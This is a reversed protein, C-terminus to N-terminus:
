RYVFLSSISLFSAVKATSMSELRLSLSRAAATVSARSPPSPEVDDM